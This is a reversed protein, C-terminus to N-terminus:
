NSGEGDMVIYEFFIQGKSAATTTGTATMTLYGGDAGLPQWKGVGHELPTAAFQSNVSVAVTNAGFPMADVLSDEQKTVSGTSDEWGFDMASGFDDIQWVVCRLAIANAPLAYMAVTQGITLAAGAGDSTTFSLCVENTRSVDGGSLLKVNGLAGALNFDITSAM